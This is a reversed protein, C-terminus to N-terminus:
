QSIRSERKREGLLKKLTGIQEELSSERDNDLTNEMQEICKRIEVDLYALKESIIVDQYKMDDALKIIAKSVDSDEIQEAIGELRSISRQFVRLMDDTAKKNGAVSMAGNMLFVYVFYAGFYVAEVCIVPVFPLADFAMFIIGGVVFQVATFVLTLYLNTIRIPTQSSTENANSGSQVALLVFSLLTFVFLTWSSIDMASKIFLLLAAYLVAVFIIALRGWSSMKGM